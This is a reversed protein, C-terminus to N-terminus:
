TTPRQREAAAATVAAAAVAATAIVPLRLVRRAAPQRWQGRRGLLTSRAPLRGVSAPRGAAHRRREADVVELSQGFQGGARWECVKQGANLLLLLSVFLLVFLVLVGSIFVLRSAQPTRHLM